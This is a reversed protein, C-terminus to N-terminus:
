ARCAGPDTRDGGALVREERFRETKGTYAGPGAAPISRSAGDFPRQELTRRQRGM